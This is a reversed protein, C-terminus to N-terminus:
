FEFHTTAKLYEKQVIDAAGKDATFFLLRDSRVSFGVWVEEEVLEAVDIHTRSGKVVDFPDLIM